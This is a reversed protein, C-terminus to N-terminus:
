AALNCTSTPSNYHKWFDNFWGSLLACRVTLVHQAGKLSWRMGSQKLRQGVITKCAAEVVGSGIFYGAQRFTQYLMKARNGELYAIQQKALTRAQGRAPLDAKAQAVVDDVKDQLLVTRWQRFRLKALAAGEGYLAHTLLTVHVLAHYYDLIYVADPFNIRALKWVWAAGDGLFVIIKAKALGRRLAEARLKTGFEEAPVLHAIYSTTQYDRVPKEGPKPKRHTFLAGVKVERTRASGDAQKGKRGKLEKPRMPAGTGDACICFIEGALPNFTVAQVARWDTMAPALYAIMRQIQRGEIALGTYALLDQSAAQYSGALCGARGMWQAVGPSYGDILKLADDLPFRGQQAVPDYLYTRQLKLTGLQCLM